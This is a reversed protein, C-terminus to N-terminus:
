RRGTPRNPGLRWAGQRPRLSESRVAAAHSVGSDFTAVVGDACGGAARRACGRSADSRAAAAPMSRRGARRRARRRAAPRGPGAARHCAPCGYSRRRCTSPHRSPPWARARPDARHLLGVVGRRREPAAVEAVAGSPAAAVEGPRFRSEIESAADADEEDDGIAAAAMVTASVVTHEVTRGSRRRGSRETHRRADGDELVELAVAQHVAAEHQTEVLLDCAPTVLGAEVQVGLRALASTSGVTGSHGDVGGPRHTTDRPSRSRAPCRPRSAALVPEQTRGHGSGRRRGQRHRVCPRTATCRPRGHRRRRPRPWWGPARRPNSPLGKTPRAPPSSRHDGSGARRRGAPQTRSHSVGRIPRWRVGFSSGAPRGPGGASNQLSFGVTNTAMESWLQFGARRGPGGAIGGSGSWSTADRQSRPAVRLLQFVPNWTRRTSPQNSATVPSPSTFPPRRGRRGEPCGSVQFSTTQHLRTNSINPTSAAAMCQAGRLTDVRM